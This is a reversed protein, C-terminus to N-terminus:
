AARERKLEAARREAWAILDADFLTARAAMYLDGYHFVKKGDVMTRFVGRILIPDNMAPARETAM